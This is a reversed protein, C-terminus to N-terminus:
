LDASVRRVDVHQGLVARVWADHAVQHVAHVARAVVRVHPERGEGGAARVEHEEVEVAVVRDSEEVNPYRCRVWVAGTQWKLM